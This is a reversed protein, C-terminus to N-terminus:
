ISKISKSVCDSVSKVIRMLKRKIKTDYQIIFKYRQKIYRGVKTRKKDYKLRLRESCSNGQDLGLDNNKIFKLKITSPLIYNCM